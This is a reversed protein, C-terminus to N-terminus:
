SVRSRDSKIGPRVAFRVAGLLLMFLAAVVGGERFFIFLYAFPFLLVLAVNRVLVEDEAMLIVIQDPNSPLLNEPNQM